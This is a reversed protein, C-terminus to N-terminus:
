FILPWSIFITSRFQSIYAILLSAGTMLWGSFPPLITQITKGLLLGSFVPMMEKMMKPMLEDTWHEVLRHIRWRREWLCQDAHADDCGPHPKGKFYSPGEGFLVNISNSWSTILTRGQFWKSKMGPIFNKLLRPSLHCRKTKWPKFWTRKTICHAMWFINKDPYLNLVRKWYLSLSNKWFRDTLFLPFLIVVEVM